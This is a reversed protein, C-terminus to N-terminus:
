DCRATAVRLRLMSIKGSPSMLTVIMYKAHPGYVPLQKCASEHDAKWLEGGTPTASLVISALDDPTPLRIESIVQASDNTRSRRLNDCARLKSGGGQIAAFRRVPICNSQDVKSIHIPPHLWGRQVEELAEEWLQESHPEFKFLNPLEAM